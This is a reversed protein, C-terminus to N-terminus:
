NISFIEEKQKDAVSRQVFAVVSMLLNRKEAFSMKDFNAPIAYECEYAELYEEVGERSGRALRMVEKMSDARTWHLVRSMSLKEGLVANEAMSEQLNKTLDDIEEQNQIMQNFDDSEETDINAKLTKIEFGLSVIKELLKAVVMEFILPPGVSLFVMVCLFFACLLNEKTVTINDNIWPIAIKWGDAPIHNRMFSEIPNLMQTKQLVDTASKQNEEAINQSETAIQTAFSNMVGDLEAQEQRVFDALQSEAENKRINASEADAKAARWGAGMGQKVGNRGFEQDTARREADSKAQAETEIRSQVPSKLLAFKRTISDIREQREKELRALKAENNASGTESQLQAVKLEQQDTEYHHVLGMYNASFDTVICLYSFLSVWFATKACFVGLGKVFCLLTPIGPLLVALLGMHMARYVGLGMYVAYGFVSIGCTISLALMCKAVILDRTLKDLKQTKELKSM